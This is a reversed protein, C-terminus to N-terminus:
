DLRLAMIRAVAQARNHVNLKRFVRQMHNKVTLPSVSIILAIELNTKGLKVWHLIERQRDTLDLADVESAVPGAEKINFAWSRGLALAMQPLLSRFLLQQMPGPADKIGMLGFFCSGGAGLLGTGQFLGFGIDYSNWVAGLDPMRADSEASEPGMQAAEMGLERCRREVRAVLGQVPDRLAALLRADFPVGQLCDVHVVEHNASVILGIMLGHPLLAQLPGQAWLFFEGRHHVSTALEIARLVNGQSPAPLHSLEDM